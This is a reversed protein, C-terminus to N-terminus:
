DPSYSNHHLLTGQRGISMLAALIHFFNTPIIQGGLYLVTFDRAIFRDVM